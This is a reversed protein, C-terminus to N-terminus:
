SHPDGSHTIHPEQVPTGLADRGTADVFALYAECTVPYRDILFAPLDETRRPGELDFEDSGRIFQGAPVLVMDDSM